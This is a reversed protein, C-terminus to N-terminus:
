IFTQPKLNSTQLWNRFTFTQFPKLKIIPNSNIKKLFIFGLHLTVLLVFGKNELSWM